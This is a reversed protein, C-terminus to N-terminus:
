PDRSTCVLSLVLFGALLLSIVTNELSLVRRM